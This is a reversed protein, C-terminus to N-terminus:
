RDCLKLFEVASVLSAKNNIRREAAESDEGWEEVVHTEDLESIEFAEEADLKGAMVALSVVLSGSLSVIDHIAALQLDSQAELVAKMQQLSKPDQAVYGVGEVVTLEADHAERVWDVLPDWAERQKSVLKEPYTARYCVLDTEGYAALDDIVQQRQPTVRDIATAAYRMLPMTKPAVDEEQADWEAAIADALAVSPLVLPAKAPTKIARGDLLVTFGEEVEGSTAQKYFRKM